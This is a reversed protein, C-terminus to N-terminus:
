QGIKENYGSSPSYIPCGRLLGNVIGCGDDVEYVILVVPVLQPSDEIRRDVALHGRGHLVFPQKDGVSVVAIFGCQIESLMKFFRIRGEVVAM